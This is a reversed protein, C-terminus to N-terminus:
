PGLRLPAARISEFKQRFAGAAEANAFLIAFEQIDQICATGSTAAYLWRASNNPDQRLECLGPGNAIKTTEGGVEVRDKVIRAPGESVPRWFGHDFDFRQLLALQAGDGQEGM